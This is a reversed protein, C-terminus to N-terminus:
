TTTPRSPRACRPLASTSRRWGTRRSGSACPSPERALSTPASCGALASLRPQVARVLYETIENQQLVDSTFSLYAAAFQSDASQISLVPM